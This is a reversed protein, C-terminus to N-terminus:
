EPLGDDIHRELQQLRDDDLVLSAVAMLSEKGVAPPCLVVVATGAAAVILTEGKSFVIM